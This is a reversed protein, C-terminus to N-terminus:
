LELYASDLECERGPKTQSPKCDGEKPEGVDVGKEVAGRAGKSGGGADAARKQDSKDRGEGKGRGLGRGERTMANMSMKPLRKDIWADLIPGVESAETYEQFDLNRDGRLAAPLRTASMKGDEGEVRRSLCLCPKCRQHIM